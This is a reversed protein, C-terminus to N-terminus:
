ILLDSGLNLHRIQTYIVRPSTYQLNKINKSETDVCELRDSLKDMKM